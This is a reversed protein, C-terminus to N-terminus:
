KGPEERIAGDEIVVCCRGADTTVAELWVQLDREAALTALTALSEDDLLSGDRVLMVGLEPNLAAGIAVSVRLQEAQSSQEFPIGNFTVGDADFGLGPVPWCAKELADRKEREIIELRKTISAAKEVFAAHDGVLDERQRNQRVKRNIGDAQAIRQHIPDCDVVPLRATDAKITALEEEGDKRQREIDALQREAESLQRKLDEIRRMADKAHRCMNAVYMEAERIAEGARSRERNKEQAAALEKVLDAVSVEEAPADAHRPTADIRAKVAKADRNVATREDYLQKAAADVGSFDLGVLNQLFALQEKSPMRTFALPDFSVASFLADLMAQPKAPRMGDATTVTLQGGGEPTITRRITLPPDGDLTLIISAKETGERVPKKPLSGKGSLAYEISDLISSKGQRNRGGIVVVNGEPTIDVAKLRKVNEAEFRVIKRSM